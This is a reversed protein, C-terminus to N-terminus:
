NTAKESEKQSLGVTVVKVVRIKMSSKSQHLFVSPHDKVHLEALDTHRWEDLSRVLTRSLGLQASRRVHTCTETLKVEDQIM